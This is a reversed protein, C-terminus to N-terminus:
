DVILLKIVQNSPIHHDDQRLSAYKTPTITITQTCNNVKFIGVLTDALEFM